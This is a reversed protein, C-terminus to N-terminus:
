QPRPAADDWMAKPLEFPRAEIPEVMTHAAQPVNAVIEQSERLIPRGRRCLRHKVSPPKLSGSGKVNAWRGAIPAVWM